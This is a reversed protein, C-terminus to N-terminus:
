YGPNQTLNPNAALRPAPIPFIRKFAGHGGTNFGFAAEWKGFRIMDNRRWGEWSLERGREDYLNDLTLQGATWAPVNARARVLNVADLAETQTYAGGRLFVEARMLLIDAYRIVAFDNNMNGGNSQNDPGYKKNRVGVSRGPGAGLAAIQDYNSFDLNKDHNVHYNGAGGDLLPSGDSKFQLGAEWQARRRDAVDFKDYFNAMTCFGNWPDAPLGYKQSAAYHLTRQQLTMGPTGNLGTAKNADFPIAYITETIAPGNDAAFMKFYDPGATLGYKGSNIVADIAAKAEALKPTGIYVPANLYLKALLAHALWKTPRGYTTQDVNGSLNPIAANLESVIFNFVETRTKTPPNPNATSFGTVIPINGFCDMMTFYYIARQAKVEALTLDRNASAPQSEFFEIIRNCTGIGGFGWGWADDFPGLTPSWTHQHLNKWNNGDTWDGGRIPVLCEDSSTEQINFYGWMYNRMQSYAPGSIALFENATTPNTIQDEATEDLKTCSTATMTVSALLYLGIKFNNKM